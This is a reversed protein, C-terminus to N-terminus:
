FTYAYLEVICEALIRLFLPVHILCRLIPAQPPLLLLLLPASLLFHVAVNILPHRASWHSGTSPVSTILELREAGSTGCGSISTPTPSPSDIVNFILDTKLANFIKKRKESSPQFFTPPPSAPFLSLSFPLFLSPTSSTLFSSLSLLFYPCTTSLM